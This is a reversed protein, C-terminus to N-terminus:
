KAKVPTEVAPAFVKGEFAAKRADSADKEVGFAKDFSEGQYNSADYITGDLIVSGGAKIDSILREKSHMKLPAGGKM